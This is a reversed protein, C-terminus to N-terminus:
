RCPAGAITQKRSPRLNMGSMLTSANFPLVAIFKPLLIPRKMEHVWENESQYSILLFSSACEEDQRWIISVLSFSVYKSKLMESVDPLSSSRNLLLKKGHYSTM